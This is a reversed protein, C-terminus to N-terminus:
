YIIVSASIRGKEKKKFHTRIIVAYHIPHRYLPRSFTPGEREGIKKKFIFFFM